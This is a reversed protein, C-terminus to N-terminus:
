DEEEFSPNQQSDTEIAREESIIGQNSKISPQETQQDEAVGDNNPFV